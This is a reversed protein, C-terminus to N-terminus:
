WGDEFDEEDTQGTGTFTVQTYTHEGDDPESDLRYWADEHWGAPGDSEFDESFPVSASFQHSLSSYVEIGSIDFSHSLESDAKIAVQFEQQLPANKTITPIDFQHQLGTVTIIGLVFNHSLSDVDDIKPSFTKSSLLQPTFVNFDGAGERKPGIPQSILPVFEEDEVVGGVIQFYYQTESVLGSITFSNGDPDRDIPEENALTWPGEPTTAYYINFKTSM